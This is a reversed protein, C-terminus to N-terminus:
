QGLFLSIITIVIWFFNLLAKESHTFHTLLVFIYSNLNRKHTKLNFLPGRLLKLMIFLIKLRM